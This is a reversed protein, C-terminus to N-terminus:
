RLLFFWAAAGILAAVFGILVGTRFGGSESSAGAKSAPDRFKLSVRGLRIVDGDNLRHSFVKEDNVFVGNTSLLNIVRWGDESRVLRAHESSLSPEDLQIDCVQSRGITTRDSTLVFERGDLSEGVGVLRAERGTLTADGGDAALNGPLQDRSFVQTGQPGQRPDTNSDSEATM